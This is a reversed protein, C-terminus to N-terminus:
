EGESKGKPLEEDEATRPVQLKHSIDKIFLTDTAFVYVLRSLTRNSVGLITELYTHRISEWVNLDSKKWTTGCCNSAM